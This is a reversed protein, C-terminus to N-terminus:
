DETVKRIVWKIANPVAGVVIFIGFFIAGIVFINYGIRWINLNFNSFSQLSVAMSSQSDMQEVTTADPYNSFLGVGDVTVDIEAIFPDTSSPNRRFGCWFQQFKREGFVSYGTSNVVFDKEYNNASNCPDLSPMM